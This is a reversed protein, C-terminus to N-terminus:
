RDHSEGTLAMRRAGGQGALVLQEGRQLGASLSLRQPLTHMIFSLGGDSSHLVTGVAGVIVLQGDASVSGGNLTMGTGSDLARWQAGFDDSRHLQGQLGFVLLADQVKSYLAGFWSGQYVSPLSEWHHGGDLSRFMLGEEGAIFVRGAGDGTVTNLHLEEPNEVATSASVWHSGGDNSTLFEGFAGVAWGRDQDQFWIDMLPSAFPPEELALEADELDLLADELATELAAQEGPLAVAAARKLRQVEVRAAERQELNAQEQVAIGNRQLRWTEGGDDTALIIGDHGAAWGHGADIFCVSTLMQTTPVRAQRWNRGDDDSYLIHGREGVAVLRSGADALDLLLSHVARPMIPAYDPGATISGSTIVLWLATLIFHRARPKSM